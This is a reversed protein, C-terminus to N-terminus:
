FELEGGEIGIFASGLCGYETEGRSRATQSWTSLLKGSMSPVFVVGGVGLSTIITSTMILVCPSTFGCCHNDISRSLCLVSLSYSNDREGHYHPM